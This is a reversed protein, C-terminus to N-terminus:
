EAFLLSLRPSHIRSLLRLARPEITDALQKVRGSRVLVHGGGRRGRIAIWKGIETEKLKSDCHLINKSIFCAGFFFMCVYACM